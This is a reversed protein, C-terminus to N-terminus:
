TYGPQYTFYHGKTIVCKNGTEDVGRKDLSYGQKLAPQHPCTTMKVEVGSISVITYSIGKPDEKVEHRILVNQADAIKRKVVTKTATCNRCRYSRTIEPNSPENVTGTKKWVHM